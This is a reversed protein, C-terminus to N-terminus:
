VFRWSRNWVGLKTWPIASQRGDVIQYLGVVLDVLHNDDKITADAAM